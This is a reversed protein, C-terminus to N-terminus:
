EIPLGFMLERAFKVPPTGHALVADNYRRLNFDKGWRQEAEARLATHEAYGTFYSLLQASSLQARTWKGAAEREQQFAGKMMLDMAQERTMGETHVGIDLLTNTISRLRLKLVTLAFLPDGNLYGEDKMLGEGYVAWGEAFPSSWLVSRLVSPSHNAHDLQLYHGPVAEHISVDHIMYNNYESLFSTAQADSWNAPVPSIAFFNQQGKELAGPPDDYAVANGQQFKPMTIVRVPGDPMTVFGKARVFDTAQTVAARAAAELEGRAPRHEYTIALAAEIAAQQQADTPSAPLSPAGPRGALVKRSLQYMEARADAKAKLASAKLESRTLNSMLVFTMKEDYLRAGLRFDGTAQPVLTKDLWEQQEAVAKKLGELAADFRARDTGTLTDAHPALMGEAIETIGSNQQSVTEAYAKPVRAPVLRRRSEALLAPIAEMRLTAAKLRVDWPAFDRAALGYLASAACDNWIQVNWTSSHLTESDWLRYRLDNDLLLYDVQDEPSLQARPIAGLRELLAHWVTNQSNEGTASLDPLLADYRHDGLTTAGVPDLRTLADLYDKSLRGFAQAAPINVGASAPSPAAQAAPSAASLAIAIASAITHLHKM